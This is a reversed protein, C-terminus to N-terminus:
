GHDQALRRAQKLLDEVTKDLTWGDLDGDPASLAPGRMTLVTERRVSDYTCEVTTGDRLETAGTWSTGDALPKRILPGWEIVKADLYNGECSGATVCSAQGREDLRFFLWRTDGLERAWYFGAETPVDM